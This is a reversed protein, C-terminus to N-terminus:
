ARVGIGTRKRLQSGNFIHLAGRVGPTTCEVVYRRRGDLNEFVSVVVGPWQYGATKEVRDGLAFQPEDTMM